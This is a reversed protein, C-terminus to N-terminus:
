GRKWKHKKGFGHGHKHHIVEDRLCTRENNEEDVEIVGQAVDWGGLQAIQETTITDHNWSHEHGEIIVFFKEGTDHAEDKVPLKIDQSTKTSTTSMATTHYIGACAPFFNNTPSFITKQPDSVLIWLVTSRLAEGM